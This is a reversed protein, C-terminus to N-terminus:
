KENKIILNNEAYVINEKSTVNYFLQKNKEHLAHSNPIQYNVGMHWQHLVSIEDIIKIDMKNRRIRMIFDDDDYAVGKAFREDFGNLEDLKKKFMASCFHYAVPRHRTHNYWGPVGEQRFVSEVCPLVIKKCEEIINDYNLKSMADTQAKTIAYTSFSFYDNERLRENVFSLIDGFHFCEPNQILIIEGVAKKFGVNFPVCPNVYWRDVKELRVVQLFPFESMLDEIKHEESSCDDVAIVEFDKFKSLSISKLTRKFLDKRNFYAIVISLKM